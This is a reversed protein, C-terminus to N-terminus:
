DAHRALLHDLANGYLWLAIRDVLLEAPRPLWFHPRLQQTWCVISGGPAPHVLTVTWGALVPGVKDARFLGIGAPGPPDWRTLRMPDDLTVPGLSTRAIFRWGPGPNDPAAPERLVRTLPMLRGHGAFDTVAAWAAQPTLSTHREITIVM